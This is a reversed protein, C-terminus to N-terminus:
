FSFLISTLNENSLLKFMFYHHRHGKKRWRQSLVAHSHSCPHHPRALPASGDGFGRSISWCRNTVYSLPFQAPGSDRDPLHNRHISSGRVSQSSPFPSLSYCGTPRDAPRAPALPSGHQFHLSMHVGCHLALLAVEVVAVVAVLRAGRNFGDAAAAAAAASASGQEVSAVIM